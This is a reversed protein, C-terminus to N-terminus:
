GQDSGRVGHQALDPLRMIRNYPWVLALNLPCGLTGERTSGPPQGAMNAAACRWERNQKEMM